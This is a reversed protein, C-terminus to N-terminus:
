IEHSELVAAKIKNAEFQFSWLPVLGSLYGIGAQFGTPQLKPVAVIFVLVDSKSFTEV